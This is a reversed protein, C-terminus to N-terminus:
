FYQDRCQFLEIELLKSTDKVATSRDAETAKAKMPMVMDVSVLM